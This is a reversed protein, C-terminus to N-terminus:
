RFLLFFTFFILIISEIFVISKLNTSLEKIIEKKKDVKERKKKFLGM